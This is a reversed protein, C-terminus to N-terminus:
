GSLYGPLKMKMFLRTAFFGILVSSFGLGLLMTRNLKPM